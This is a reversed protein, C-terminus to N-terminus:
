REPDSPPLPDLIRVAGVVSLHRAEAHTLRVEGGPPPLPMRYRAAAGAALVLCRVTRPQERRKM